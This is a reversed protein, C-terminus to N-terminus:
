FKTKVTKNNQSSVSGISSTVFKGTLPEVYDPKGFCNVVVNEARVSREPKIGSQVNACFGDVPQVRGRLAVIANNNNLKHSV